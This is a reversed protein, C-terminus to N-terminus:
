EKSLSYIGKDTLFYLTNDIEGLYLNFIAGDKNTYNIKNGNIDYIDYLYNSENTSKYAAIVLDNITLPNWYDIESIKQCNVNYIYRNGNEEMVALNQYVYIIKSNDMSNCKFSSSQKGNNVIFYGDNNKFTAEEYKTDSNILTNEFNVITEGNLNIAGCMTKDEKKCLTIYTDKFTSGRNIQIYKFSDKLLEKGDLDYVKLIDNTNQIYMYNNIYYINYPEEEYVEEEVYSLSEVKQLNMDKDVYYFIEKAQSDQLLIMNNEFYEDNYNNLGIIDHIGSSSMNITKEKIGELSYFNIAKIYNDNDYQYTYFKKLISSYSISEEKSYNFDVITKNDKNIIGYLDHKKIIIYTDNDISFTTYPKYETYEGSDLSTFYDPEYDFPIITNGNTDIVGVKDNKNAILLNSNPIIQIYNYITDIVKEGELTYLGYKSEENMVTFYKNSINIISLNKDYFLNNNLSLFGSISTDNYYLQYGVINGSEDNAAYSTYNLPLKNSEDFPVSETNNLNFVYLNNYQGIGSVFLLNNKKATSTASGIMNTKVDITGAKELIYNNSQFFSKGNKFYKIIYYSGFCLLAIGVVVLMIIIIRKKNNKM